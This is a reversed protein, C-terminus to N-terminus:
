KKTEIKQEVSPKYYSLPLDIFIMTKKDVPYKNLIDRLFKCDQGRKFQDRQDFKVDKLVDINITSHGHNFRPDIWIKRKRKQSLDYIESGFIIQNEKPNEFIKNMLDNNKSFSHIISKPKYKNIIQWLIDLRQPHMEDDSDFFSIYKCTSLTSARNRNEAAFCKKLTSSFIVTFSYIFKKKLIDCEENSIESHGIIVEKPIITQNEISDLCIKLKNTDRPFCPIVVSIPIM